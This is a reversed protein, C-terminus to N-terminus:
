HDRDVTSHPLAESAHTCLACACVHARQRVNRASPRAVCRCGRCAVRRLTSPPIPQESNHPHRPAELSNRARDSSNHEVWNRPGFTELARFWSNLHCKPNQHNLRYIPLLPRIYANRGKKQSGRQAYYKGVTGKVRRYIKPIKPPRPMPTKQSTACM